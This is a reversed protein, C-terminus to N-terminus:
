VKKKTEAEHIYSTRMGFDTVKRPVAQCYHFYCGQINVGPFTGQLAPILATEFDCIVTQPQLVVGLSGAICLHSNARLLFMFPSCRSTGNQFQKSHEMWPDSLINLHFQYIKKNNYSLFHRDSKTMRWYPPM